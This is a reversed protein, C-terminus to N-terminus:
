LRTFDAEALRVPNGRNKPATYSGSCIDPLVNAGIGSVEDIDPSWIYSLTEFDGSVEVINISGDCTSFNTPDTLEVNEINMQIPDILEISDIIECGSDDLVNIFYWGELLSFGSSIGGSINVIMGTENTIEIIYPEIGGTPIASVEGDSFGPCLPDNKSISINFDECQGYAFPMMLSFIFPLLLKFTM